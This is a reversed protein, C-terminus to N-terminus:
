GHTWQGWLALFYRGHYQPPAGTSVSILWHHCSSHCKSVILSEQRDKIATVATIKQRAEESVDPEEWKLSNIAGRRAGIILYPFFTIYLLFRFYVLLICSWYKISICNGTNFERETYRHGSTRVSVYQCFFLIRNNAEASIGIDHM